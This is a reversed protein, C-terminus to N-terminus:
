RWQHQRGRRRRLAPEGGLQRGHRQGACQGHRQHGGHRDADLNEVDAGLVYSASANVLDTGEDADEDVVDLSNDVVYTDNGLGGVLTDTGLGGDLIDDLDGGSIVNNLANGTGVFPDADVGTYTLNEINALDAIAPNALSYTALDTAIGDIGAGVAEVIIDEIDALIYTDNGAGGVLTDLGAEGDLEDNGAGGVLLDDGDGGLLNDNGDHGFLLDNGTNGTVDDGGTSGALLTNQLPVTATPDNDDTSLAYDGELVYGAFTSGNFNIFEVAESAADFHDNVTVQQGNFQVVLDSSGTEFANVGTLAIPVAPPTSGGISIRDTGGGNVESVIDQGDTSNSCTPTTGSVAM